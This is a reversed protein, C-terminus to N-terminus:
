GIMPAVMMSNLCPTTVAMVRHIRIMSPGVKVRMIIYPRMIAPTMWILIRGATLCVRIMSISTHGGQKVGYSLPTRAPLGVIIFSSIM